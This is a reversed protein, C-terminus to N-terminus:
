LGNVQLLQAFRADGLMEDCHNRARYVQSRTQAEPYDEVMVAEPSDEVWLMTRGFHPQQLPDGERSRKFVSVFNPSWIDAGQYPQGEDAANYVAKGVFIEELGLLAKFRDLIIQITKDKDSGLAARIAKNKLMATLTRAGISMADAYAGVRNRVAERGDLVNGIIDADPDDWETTVNTRLGNGTTFISQSQVIGAIDVEQDVLVRRMALKSCAVEAAFDHQYHRRESEDLQAEHGREVCEYQRPKAEFGDRAYSTKPARKVNQGPRLWSELTIVSFEGTKRDVKYIPFVQLGIFEDQQIMYEMVAEGLDLRPSGYAGQFLIGM